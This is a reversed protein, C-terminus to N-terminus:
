WSNGNDDDIPVAIIVQDTAQLCELVLRNLWLIYYDNVVATFITREFSDQVIKLAAVDNAQV